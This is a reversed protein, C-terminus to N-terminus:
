ILLIHASKVQGDVHLRCTYSGHSQGHQWTAAHMGPAALGEVLIGQREGRADVVELMVYGTTPICYELITAENARGLNRSGLVQVNPLSPSVSISVGYDYPEDLMHWRSENQGNYDKRLYYTLLPTREFEALSVMKPEDEWLYLPIDWPNILPL